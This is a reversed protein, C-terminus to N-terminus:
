KKAGAKKLQDGINTNGAKLAWDLATGGRDTEINPDAGAKLLLRVIDEHGQRSAIMLATAGNPARADVNAQKGVLFRCVDTRGEFSCYHLPTWGGHNIEAGREYLLQVVPLQGRLAALMMATEGGPNRLNIRARKDLLLRAVDTNGEWAAQMLLTNGRPDVSNADFGRDLLARVEVVNNLQVARNLDDLTPQGQAGASAALALWGFLALALFPSRPARRARPTTRIMAHHDERAAREPPLM